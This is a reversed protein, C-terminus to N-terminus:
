GSPSERILYVTPLVVAVLAVKGLRWHLVSYVVGGLRVGCCLNVYRVKETLEREEREEKGGGERGKSLM